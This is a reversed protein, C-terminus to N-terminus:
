RRATFTAVREGDASTLELTDGKIQYATVSELAALYEGEQAMLEEPACYMETAGIVGFTLSNGDSEYAGFYSNCGASGTVQSGQFEATVETDLLVNVLEGQSDVYSDLKWLTGELSAAAGTQGEQGIVESTQVLEDEQLAYKQVVRQTPCCMPDDPGHTVMDVVIEEDEIGLSKIQTRDGLLTTAVNVPEGDQEVVATLYYFTGSGGPATILIVAALPQGDSTYGFAMRDSLLVVIKTAAGPVISEQYEGDTLPATGSATWESLYENNKLGDVTFGSQAAEASPICLKWGPEILWPDAVATYTDDSVSRANTALVIAPYLAYDDYYQIAIKSLWDGSQVDYDSECAVPEQAVSPTVLILALLAVITIAAIRQRIVKM